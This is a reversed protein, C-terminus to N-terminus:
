DGQVAVSQASPQKANMTVVHANLLLLEARSTQARVAIASLFLLLLTLIWRSSLQKWSIFIPKM